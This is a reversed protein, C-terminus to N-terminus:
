PRTVYWHLMLGVALAGLMFTLRRARRIRDRLEWFLTSFLLVSAAVVPDTQREPVFGMLFAVFSALIGLAGAFFMVLVPLSVSVDPRALLVRRM